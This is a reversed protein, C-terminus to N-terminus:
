SQPCDGFNVNKDNLRTFAQGYFTFLRQLPRTKVSHWVLVASLIAASALISVAGNPWRDLVHTIDDTEFRIGGWRLLVVGASQVLSLLVVLRLVFGAYWVLTQGRNIVTTLLAAAFPLLIGSLATFIFGADGVGYFDCAVYAVPFLGFAVCRGGCLRLALAHGGEHLLPYVLLAVVLGELLLIFLRGAGQKMGFSEREVTKEARDKGTPPGTIGPTFAQM